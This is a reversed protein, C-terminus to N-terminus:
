PSMQPFSSRFLGPFGPSFFGANRPRFAHRACRKLSYFCPNKLPARHFHTQAQLVLRKQAGPRNPFAENYTTIPYDTTSLLLHPSFHRFAQLVLPKQAGALHFFSPMELAFCIGTHKHLICNPAGRASRCFLRDPFVPTQPGSPVRSVPARQLGARIHPPWGTLWTARARAANAAPRQPTRAVEIM